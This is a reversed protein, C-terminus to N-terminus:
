TGRHESRVSLEQAFIALCSQCTVFHFEGHLGGATVQMRDNQSLNGGRARCSASRRWALSMCGVLRRMWHTRPIGPVGYKIRRVGHEDLFEM